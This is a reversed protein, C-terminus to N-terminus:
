ALTHEGPRITAQRDGPQAAPAARLWTDFVEPSDGHGWASRLQQMLPALAQTYRQSATHALSALADAAERAQAAMSAREQGIEKERVGLQNYKQILFRQYDGAEVGQAVQANVQEFRMVISATEQEVHAAEANLAQLAEQLRLAERRHNQLTTAEDDFTRQANLYAQVVPQPAVVLLPDAGGARRGSLLADEGLRLNGVDELWRGRTMVTAVTDLALKRLADARQTAVPETGTAALEGPVTHGQQAAHAIDPVCAAVTAAVSQSMAQASKRVARRLEFRALLMMLLGAALWTLITEAHVQLFARILETDLNM